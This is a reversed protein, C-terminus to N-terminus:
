KRFESSLIEFCVSDHLNGDQLKANQRFYACERGGHKKIFNRYGRIAPNDVYACWSIRNMQYVEFLDCVAKYVDKAFVINGKDFSIIGFRDANMSIWDISYSIYGILNEKKDISVFHHSDYNNDPIEPIRDGTWGTYFINEPKYWTKVYEKYLENKYLQAPKLMKCEKSKGVNILSDLIMPEMEVCNEKWIRRLEPVDYGTRAVSIQAVGYQITLLLEVILRKLRQSLIQVTHM